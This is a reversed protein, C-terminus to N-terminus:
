HKFVKDFENKPIGPGNDKINLVLRDHEIGSTVVVVSGAPTYKLANGILNYLIKELANAPFSYYGGFNKKDNIISRGEAGSDNALTDVIEDIFDGISGTSFNVRYSGMGLKSADMLEDVLRIMRKSNRELLVLQETDQIGGNHKLVQIPGDILTLPTRIEHFINEFMKLKEQEFERTIKRRHLVMYVVFAAVIIIMFVGLLLLNRQNRGREIEQKSLQLEKEKKESQYRIELEDIEKQKQETFLSQRTDNELNKYHYANKYDGVTKYLESIRGYLAPKFQDEPRKNNVAIAKTMFQIAETYNKKEFYYDGINQNATMQNLLDNHKAAIEASKQYYYLCSDPKVAQYAAGLANYVTALYQPQKKIVLTNEANRLTKVAKEPLKNSIQLVAINTTIIAYYRYDDADKKAQAALNLYQEAKAANNQYFYCVAIGNYITGQLSKENNKEALELGKLYNAIAEKIKNQKQYAEGIKAYSRIILKHDNNTRGINQAAKSYYIASDANQTLFYNALEITLEGKRISNADRMLVRLSDAPNQGFAQLPLGSLLVIIIHVRCKQLLKCGAIKFM